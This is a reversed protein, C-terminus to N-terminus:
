WAVPRRTRASGIVSSWSRQSLEVPSWDRKPIRRCSLFAPDHARWRGCRGGDPEVGPDGRTLRHDDVYPCGALPVEQVEHEVEQPLATDVVDDDVGAAVQAVVARSDGPDPQFVRCPASHADATVRRAHPSPRCWTRSGLVPTGVRSMRSGRRGEGAVEEGRVAMEVEDVM